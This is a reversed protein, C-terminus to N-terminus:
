VPPAVRKISIIFVNSPSMPRPFGNEERKEMKPRFESERMKIACFRDIVEVGETQVMTPLLIPSSETAQAKVMGMLKKYIRATNAAHFLYMKIDEKKAFCYLWKKRLKVRQKIEKRRQKMMPIVRSFMMKRRARMGGEFTKMMEMLRTAGGTQRRPIIPMKEEEAEGEEEEMFEKREQIAQDYFEDVGRLLAEEIVELEHYMTPREEPDLSVCAQLTEVFPHLFRPAKFMSKHKTTPNIAEKFFILFAVEGFSFVDAADTRAMEPGFKVVEPALYADRTPVTRSGWPKGKLNKVGEALIGHIGFCTLQVHHLDVGSSLGTYKLVSFPRINGHQIGCQHMITLLLALQHTYDLNDYMDLLRADEWGDDENVRIANLGNYTVQFTKKVTSFQHFTQFSPVKGTPHKKHPLYVSPLKLLYMRFDDYSQVAIEKSPCPVVDALHRNSLRSEGVFCRRMKLVKCMDINKRYEFPVFRMFNARPHFNKISMGCRDLLTDDLGMSLMKSFAEHNEQVKAVHGVTRGFCDRQSLNTDRLLHQKVLAPNRLMLAQHLATFGFRSKEIKVGALPMLKMIESNKRLKAIDMASVGVHNCLHLDAGGALLVRIMPVFETRMATILATSGSYNGYDVHAGHQLLYEVISVHVLTPGHESNDSCVLLPALHRLEKSIDNVCPPRAAVLSQVIELNGMMCPFFIPPFNGQEDEDENWSGGGISRHPKCWEKDENLYETINKLLLRVIDHNDNRCAILLLSEMGRVIKLHVKTEEAVRCIEEVVDYSNNAVAVRLATWGDNDHENIMSIVRKDLLLMQVLHKNGIIGVYHLATKGRKDKIMPDIYPLKLLMRMKEVKGMRAAVLVQASLSRSNDGFEDQEEILITQDFMEASMDCSIGMHIIMAKNIAVRRMREEHKKTPQCNLPIPPFIKYYQMLARKLDGNTMELYFQGERVTAGDAIVSFTKLKEVLEMPTAFDMKMEMDPEDNEEFTYGCVLYCAEPVLDDASLQRFVNVEYAQKGFPSNGISLTKETIDMDQIALFWLDYLDAWQEVGRLDLPFSFEQMRQEYVGEKKKVNLVLIVFSEKTRSAKRSSKTIDEFALCSGKLDYESSSSSPYLYRIRSFGVKQPSLSLWDPDDDM